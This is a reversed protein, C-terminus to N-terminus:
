NRFICILWDKKKKEYSVNASVTNRLSNLKQKSKCNHLIIRLFCVFLLLAFLASIRHLEYKSCQHRISHYWWKWSPHAKRMSLHTAIVFCLKYRIYLVGANGEISPVVALQTEKTSFAISFDIRFINRPFFNQGNQINEIKAWTCSSLMIQNM